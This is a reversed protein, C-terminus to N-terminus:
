SPIFVEDSVDINDFNEDALIILNTGKKEDTKEHYQDKSARRPLFMWKQLTSSWGGSEHIVYGILV